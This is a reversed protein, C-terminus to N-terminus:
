FDGHNGHGICSNYSWDVRQKKVLGAPQMTRRHRQELHNIQWLFFSGDGRFIWYIWINSSLYTKPPPVLFVDWIHTQETQSGTLWRPWWAPHLHEEWTLSQFFEQSNPASSWHSFSLFVDSSAYRLIFSRGVHENFFPPNPYLNPRALHSYCYLYHLKSFM